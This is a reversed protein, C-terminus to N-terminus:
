PEQITMGPVDHDAFHRPNLTLFICPTLKSAAKAILADYVRGGVIGHAAADDLLRWHERSRVSQLRASDDFNKELVDRADRAALRYPAPLRTLVSYSEVLSHAALALELGSALHREVSKRVVDHREHWGSVLAVICSTDLVLADAGPM